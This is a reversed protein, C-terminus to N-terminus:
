KSQMMYFVYGYYLSYKRYMDIEEKSADLVALAELNEAYKHGLLNIRKQLPKYFDDWWGSEHLTFSGTLDYDEQGIIEINEVITNIGPYENELYARIEEPIDTKLWTLESVVLYGGRKILPKWERLGKQFGIIFIAGESWIIDFSGKAFPLDFMSSNITKIRNSFGDAKARRKLDDLYPQYNDLATIQGKSIRALELTQMGSGCGVDLINPQPPLNALLKYAKRTCKNSGPGQRPMDSFLEYMFESVM